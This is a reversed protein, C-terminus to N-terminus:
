PCSLTDNVIKALIGSRNGKEIAKNLEPLLNKSWDTPHRVLHTGIAFRVAMKELPKGLVKLTELEPLAVSRKIVDQATTARSHLLVIDNRGMQLKRLRNNVSDPEEEVQFVKGRAQEFEQSYHVGYFTSLTLGQLDAIREVKIPSNKRVVMWVNSTYVPDSFSLRNEPDEELSTQPMGWFLGAGEATKVQARKFPYFQLKFQVQMEKEFYALLADNFCGPPLTNGQPDTRERLILPISKQAPRYPGALAPFALLASLILCGAQTPLYQKM